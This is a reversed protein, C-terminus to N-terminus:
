PKQEVHFMAGTVADVADLKRQPESIERRKFTRVRLGVQESTEAAMTPYYLRFAEAAYHATVTAGKRDQRSELLAGMVMEQKRPWFTSM